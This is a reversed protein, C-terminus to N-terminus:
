SYNKRSKRATGFRFPLSPFFFTFDWSFARVSFPGLFLIISFAEVGRVSFAFFGQCQWSDCLSPVGLFFVKVLTLFWLPETSRSLFGKCPGLIMLARTDLFFAKSPPSINSSTFNSSYSLNIRLICIQSPEKLNFNYSM